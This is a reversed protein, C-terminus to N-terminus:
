VCRGPGCEAGHWRGGFRFSFGCCGCGNWRVCGRPRELLAVVDEQNVTGSVDKAGVVRDPELRTRRVACMYIGDVAKAAHQPLEELFHLRVLPRRMECDDEVLRLFSETGLHVLFVLRM